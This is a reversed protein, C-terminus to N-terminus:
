SSQLHRYIDQLLELLQNTDNMDITKTITGNNTYRIISTSSSSQNIDSSESVNAAEINSVTSTIQSEDVTGEDTSVNTDVFFIEYIPVHM